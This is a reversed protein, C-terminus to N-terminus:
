YEIIFNIKIIIVKITVKITPFQLVLIVFYVVAVVLNEIIFNFKIIIVKITVKIIFQLVLIVFYVVAVAM